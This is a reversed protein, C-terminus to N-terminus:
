TDNMISALRNQTHPMKINDYYDLYAVRQMGYCPYSQDFM